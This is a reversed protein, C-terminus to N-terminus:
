HELDRLRDQDILVIRGGARQRHEGLRPDLQSDVVESGPVRSQPVQAAEGHVHQLDISGPDHGRDAISTGPVDDRRHHPQGVLQSGSDHHFTDLVGLCCPHTPLQASM